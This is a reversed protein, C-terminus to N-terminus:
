FHRRAVGCGSDGNAATKVVIRNATRTLQFEGWCLPNKLTSGSAPRAAYRVPLRIITHNIVVIPAVGGALDQVAPGKPPTM